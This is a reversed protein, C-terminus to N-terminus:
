AVGQERGRPEAVQAAVVAGGLGLPGAGRADRQEGLGGGAYSTGAVVDAVYRDLHDAGAGPETGSAVLRDGRERRGDARRDGERGGGGIAEPEGAPALPDGRDGGGQDVGGGSARR